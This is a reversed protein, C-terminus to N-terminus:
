YFFLLRCVKKVCVSKVICDVYEAKVDELLLYDKLFDIRPSRSNVKLWRDVPGPLKLIDCRYQQREAPTADLSLPPIVTPVPMM